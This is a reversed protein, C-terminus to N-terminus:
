GPAGAQIGAASELYSVTTPTGLTAGVMAGTSDAVLARGLNPVTGDKNMLGARHTTAILMGTSDPLDMLFFIFVIGLIGLAIAGARRARQHLTLASLPEPQLLRDCHFGSEGLDFVGDPRANGLHRADAKANRVRNRERREVRGSIEAFRDAARDDGGRAVPPDPLVAAAPM